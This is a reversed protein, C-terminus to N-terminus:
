ADEPIGVKNVGVALRYGRVLVAPSAARKSLSALKAEAKALEEGKEAMWRAGEAAQSLAPFTSCFFRRQSGNLSLM